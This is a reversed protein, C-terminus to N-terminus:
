LVAVRVDAHVSQGAECAFAPAIGLVSRTPILSGVVITPTSLVDLRYRQGSSDPLQDAFEFAANTDTARYATQHTQQDILRVVANPLPKGSYDYATGTILCTDSSAYADLALTALLAILVLRIM